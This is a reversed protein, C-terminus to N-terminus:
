LFGQAQHTEFPGGYPGHPDYSAVLHDPIAPQPGAGQEKKQEKQKGNQEEEGILADLYSTESDTGRDREM